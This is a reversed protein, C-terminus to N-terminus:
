TAMDCYECLVPENGSLLLSAGCNKCAITGSRQPKQQTNQSNSNNQDLLPELGNERSNLQDMIKIDEGIILCDSVIMGGEFYGSAILDYLYMTTEDQNLGMARAIDDTKRLKKNFIVEIIQRFKDTAKKCRYAIYFDLACWIIVMYKLIQLSQKNEIPASQETLMVLLSFLLMLVGQIIFLVRTIANSEKDVKSRKVWVVNGIPYILIYTIFIVLWSNWFSIKPKQIYGRQYADSLNNINSM